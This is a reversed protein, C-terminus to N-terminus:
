LIHWVTMGTLHSDLGGNSMYDFCLLRERIESYIPKQRRGSGEMKIFKHETNACYGLFRVINKHRVGMLFTAERYFPEDEITQSNM